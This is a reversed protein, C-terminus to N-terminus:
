EHCYKCPKKQGIKFLQINSQEIQKQKNEDYKDDNKTKTYDAKSQKMLAKVGLDM